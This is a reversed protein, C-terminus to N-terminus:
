AAVEEFCVITEFSYGCPECKWLHRARSEDVYESWEPLFLQQGCRKCHLRASETTSGRGM